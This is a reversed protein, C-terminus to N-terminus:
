GWIHMGAFNGFLAVSLTVILISVITAVVGVRAFEAITFYGSSYPLVNTPSSTVMILALSTAIGAPGAIAWPDMGLDRALVAVLPIILSGTVSNSSLFIKLLEVVAIIFMVRVLPHISAIGHFAGWAIYRAAGTEALLLGASIGGAILLLGAWDIQNQAEKWSDFIRIGPIFCLIFALLAM